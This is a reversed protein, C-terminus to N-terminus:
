SAPVGGATRLGAADPVRTVAFEHLLYRNSALAALRMREREHDSMEARAAELEEKRALLESPMPVRRTM